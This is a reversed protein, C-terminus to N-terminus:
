EPPLPVTACHFDLAACAVPLARPIAFPMQSTPVFRRGSILSLPGFRRQATPRCARERNRSLKILRRFPPFGYKFRVFLINAIWFVERDALRQDNRLHRQWALKRVCDAHRLWALPFRHSSADCELATRAFHGFVVASDQSLKLLARADERRKKM